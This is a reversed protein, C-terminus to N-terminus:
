SPEVRAAADTRIRQHARRVRGLGSPGAHVTGARAGGLGSHAPVDDVGARRRHARRALARRGGPLHGENLIVHGMAMALAADTSPACALWDDAFKTHDSYDPSAIAPMMMETTLMTTPIATKALLRHRCM